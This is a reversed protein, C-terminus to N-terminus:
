ALTIRILPLRSSIQYRRLDEVQKKIYDFIKAESSAVGTDILHIDEGYICIYVFREVTTGSDIRIEFPVKLAHVHETVQM